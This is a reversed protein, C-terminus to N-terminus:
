LFETTYVNRQTSSAVKLPLIYGGLNPHGGKSM